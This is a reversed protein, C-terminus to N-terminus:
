QLREGRLDRAAVELAAALTAAFGRPDAPIAPAKVSFALTVTAAGDVAVAVSLATDRALRIAVADQEHLLVRKSRSAAFRAVAGIIANTMM